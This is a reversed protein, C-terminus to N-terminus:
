SSNPTHNSNVRSPSSRNSNSQPVESDTLRAVDNHTDVATANIVATKLRTYLDGLADCERDDLLKYCDSFTLFHLTLSNLHPILGLSVLERYHAQFLHALVHYLLRFIKRIVSEFSSPFVEGYKTPLDDHLSKQCFTLVYDVYQSASCRLKKGKEDQWLYCTNNPGTMASCSTATCYESITGYMVNIHEFFSVSHTALWENKDVGPPMEVIKDFDLDIVKERILSEDLYQKGDEPTSVPSEKEKKRSKSQFLFKFISTSRSRPRNSVCYPAGETSVPKKCSQHVRLQKSYPEITEDNRFSTPLILPTRCQRRVDYDLVSKEYLLKTEFPSAVQCM